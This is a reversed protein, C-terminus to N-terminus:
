RGAATMVSIVATPPVRMRAMATLISPRPLSFSLTPLISGAMKRGINYTGSLWHSEPSTPHNGVQGRRLRAAAPAATCANQSAFGQFQRFENGAIQTLYPSGDLRRSSPLAIHQGGNKQRYQVHRQACPQRPQESLSNTKSPSLNRRRALFREAPGYKKQSFSIHFLFRM